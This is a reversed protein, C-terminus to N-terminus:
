SRFLFQECPLFAAATAAASANVLQAQLAPPRVLCSRVHPTIGSFIAQM